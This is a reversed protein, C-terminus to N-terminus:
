TIGSNPVIATRTSAAATTEIITNDLFVNLTKNMLYNKFKQNWYDMRDSPCMAYYVM